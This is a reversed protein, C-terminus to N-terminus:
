SRGIILVFAGIILLFLASAWIDRDVTGLARTLFNQESEDIMDDVGTNFRTDVEYQNEQPNNVDFANNLAFFGKIVIIMFLIGFVILIARANNKQKVQGVIDASSVGLFM